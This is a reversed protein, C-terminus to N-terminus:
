PQRPTQAASDTVAMITTQLSQNPEKKKRNGVIIEGIWGLAILFSPIWFNPISREFSLYHDLTIQRFEEKTFSEQQYHAAIFDSHIAVMRPEIVVVDLLLFVFGVIFIIRSIYKM